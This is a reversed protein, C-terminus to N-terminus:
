AALLPLPMPMVSGIAHVQRAVADAVHVMASPMKPLCKIRPVGFSTCSARAALAGKGLWTPVGSSQVLSTLCMMSFSMSLPSTIHSSPAIRYAGFYRDKTGFASEGM